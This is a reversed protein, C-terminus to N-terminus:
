QYAKPQKRSKSQQEYVYGCELLKKEAFPKGIFTLGKPEGEETVGMPVTLAPYEAVAAFGAHYNNVSLVVDLQNADMLVDFFKRGETKLKEKISLLEETSASDAVVGKLLAQGYPARILTDKENFLIVDEVNKIKVDKGGYISLYVELDKKMDLNLLRLFGPLEVKEEEVVVLTGGLEEIVKTANQYLSDEVLSKLVGFRKGKVSATDFGEYYTKQKRKGGLLTAPDEQDEGVMATLMIAVDKVKRGMPGPTDLTSSIPVIGGRSILGITPKLGVVANQSAPSLISGATETGIAVACFNAAVAVGSGSSSGGTDFKKRGYPNFTQGGVASYGSPCDGCFFYAWESLNAKGLILAGREKLKTIVFADETKNNMMAIAGATTSMKSTNVNDKVLVPIGYMSNESVMEHEKEDLLRAQKVVDPNIAIVSNLSTDNERDYKRIRYLYFLVLEEYSLTGDNLLRHIESIERELLVPRLKQYEVETFKKFDEEFAAWITKNQIVKADTVKFDRFQKTAIKDLSDQQHVVEEKQVKEQKPESKCSVIMGLLLLFFIRKM